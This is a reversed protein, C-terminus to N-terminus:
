VSLNFFLIRWNKYSSQMTRPVKKKRKKRNGNYNARPIFESCNGDHHKVDSL